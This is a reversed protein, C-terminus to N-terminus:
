GHGNKASPLRFWYTGKNADAKYIGYQELTKDSVLWRGQDEVIQLDKIEEAPIPNAVKPVVFAPDDAKSAGAAVVATSVSLCLIAALCATKLSAHYTM